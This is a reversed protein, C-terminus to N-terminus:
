LFLRYVTGDSTYASDVFSTTSLKDNNRSQTTQLGPPSLQPFSIHCDYLHIDKVLNMM